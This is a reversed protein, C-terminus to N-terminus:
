AEYLLKGERVARAVFRREEQLRAFEEPTYVLIDCAVRPTLLGYIEDLRDLFRKETRQVIILDLDSARHLEGRSASGFLIVRVIGPHQSLLATFRELEQRLLEVQTGITTQGRAMCVTDMLLAPAALWRTTCM